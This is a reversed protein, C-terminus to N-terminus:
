HTNHEDEESHLESVEKDCVINLEETGERSNRNKRWQYLCLVWYLLYVMFSSLFCPTIVFKILNRLTKQMEPLASAISKPLLENCLCYDCLNFMLVSLSLWVICFILYGVSITCFLTLFGTKTGKDKDKPM